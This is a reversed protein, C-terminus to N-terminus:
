PKARRPRDLRHLDEGAVDDQGKSSGDHRSCALAFAVDAREGCLAQVRQQEKCVNIAHSTHIEAGQGLGYHEGKSPRQFFISCGMNQGIASFQRPRVRYLRATTTFRMALVHASLPRIDIGLNVTHEISDADSDCILVPGLRVM